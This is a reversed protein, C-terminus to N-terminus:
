LGETSAALPCVLEDAMTHEGVADMAAPEVDGGMEDSLCLLFDASVKLERAIRQIIRASPDQTHEKEISNLANPSIGIAKALRVQSYGCWL